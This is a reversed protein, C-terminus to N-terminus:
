LHPQLHGYEPHLSRVMAGGDNSASNGSFIVNSLSPSSIGNVGYNYLAGGSGTVSNGSFIVNNLTPSSIGNEGLNFMGGGLGARNGSFVINNLTPSCESGSGAGNCYFGGGINDPYSASAQGGTLIFGDLVTTETIPTGTSGEAWVVHYANSGNIHATTTVVGNANTVDPNTEHDIDGSLVSLYVAPQRQNLDTETGIFGGYIAVGNQLSFTASRDDNTQGGGEDPYYVGEAVWIEDGSTATSLADQLNTYADGWSSGDNAGAASDDVYIPGQAYAPLIAGLSWLAVVLLFALSFKFILQLSPTHLSTM